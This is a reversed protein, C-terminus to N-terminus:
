VAEIPVGIEGSMLKPILTDRIATLTQNEEQNKRMEIMLPNMINHYSNLTNEDPMLMTMAKIIKSNVASAISSTNGLSEYNFTKLYLYLFENINNKSSKFHAIAENTTMEQSTIAVRGVTLKFSLLVTDAPVVKINFKEIGDRTLYESTNFIYSGCKGMDSISVWKIDDKNTSFWQPEKRPPTKGISINFFEDARGVRWGKPIRGLESKEFEGDQFPEFDVFWSKFIAQAMEELTKNIRNNLEIKDDFFSLTDAIVKQEKLSPLQIEIRSLEKFTIQPFTGSRSEAIIQLKNITDNSKLIQYLFRSTIEENKRRLVMLKTSAVYDRPEFDVFAYRKNKPRIESYLIDDKKFSKKFQGRLDKNPVYEHNMVKGDLVDSTNVLIINNIDFKHRQSITDVVDGLNVKKWESFSMDLQGWDNSSKM